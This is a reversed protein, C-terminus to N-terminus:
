RLAGDGDSPTHLSLTPFDAKLTEAIVRAMHAYGTGYLYNQGAPVCTTLATGDDATM